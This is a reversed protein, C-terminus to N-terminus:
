KDNTIDYKLKELADYSHHALPNYGKKQITIDKKGRKRQFPNLSSIIDGKVRIDTQNKSKKNALPRTAKNVTITDKGKSGLMEAQLGGQSHGLTTINEDGYAKSARDQVRKAEKYRHTKKYLKKGGLAYALNNGWDKVGKTGQHLVVTEKTEPNVFIKSTKSSLKKDITYGGVDTINNNYSADLFDKTESGTLSGGSIQNLESLMEKKSKQKWKGNVTKGVKLGNGKMYRKCTELNM